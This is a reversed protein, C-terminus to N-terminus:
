RISFITFIKSSNTLAVIFPCLVYSGDPYKIYLGFFAFIRASLISGEEVTLCNRKGERESNHAQKNTTNM